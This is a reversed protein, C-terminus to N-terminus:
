VIKYKENHAIAADLTALGNTGEYPTISSLALTVIAEAEQLRQSNTIGAKELRTLISKAAETINEPAEVLMEEIKLIMDARTM